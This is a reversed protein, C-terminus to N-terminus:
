HPRGQRAESPPSYHHAPERHSRRVGQSAAPAASAFPHPPTSRSRVAPTHPPASEAASLEHCLRVCPDALLRHEANASAQRACPNPLRPPARGNREARSQGRSPPWLR